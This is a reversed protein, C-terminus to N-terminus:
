HQARGYLEIMERLRGMMWGQMLSPDYRWSWNSTGVSAPLNMRASNDLGLIDQMPIVVTNAVSALNNRIMQWVIDDDNCQYYRRVLDKYNDPLGNYWGRTTENDHTGTYAM